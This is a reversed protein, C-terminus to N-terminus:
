VDLAQAILKRKEVLENQYEAMSEEAIKGYDPVAHRLWLANAYFVRGEEPGVAEAITKYDDSQEYDGHFEELWQKAREASNQISEVDAVQEDTLEDAMRESIRANLEESLEAKYQNKQEESLTAVNYGVSTLFDDDVKFM